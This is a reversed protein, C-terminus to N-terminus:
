RIPSMDVRELHIQAVYHHGPRITVRRRLTVYGIGRAVLTDGPQMSCAFTFRGTPDTLAACATRTIVVQAGYIPDGSSDDLVTGAVCWNPRQCDAPAPRHEDFRFATVSAAVCSGTLLVIWLRVGLRM